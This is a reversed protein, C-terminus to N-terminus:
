QCIITLEHCIIKISFAVSETSKNIHCIAHVSNVQNHADLLLPVTFECAVYRYFSRLLYGPTGNYKQRRKQQREESIFLM